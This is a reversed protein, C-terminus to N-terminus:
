GNLQKRLSELKDGLSRFRELLSSDREVSKKFRRQAYNLKRRALDHQGIRLFRLAECFELEAETNNIIPLNDYVVNIATTLDKMQEVHARAELLHDEKGDMDFLRLLSDASSNHVGIQSRYVLNRIRLEKIQGHMAEYGELAEKLYSICRQMFLRDQPQEGRSYFLSEYGLGLGHLIRADRIEERKVLAEIDLIKEFLLNRRYLWLLIYIFEIRFKGSWNGKRQPGAGTEDPPLPQVMHLEHELWNVLDLELNEEHGPINISLFDVYALMLFEYMTKRLDNPEEGVLLEDLFRIVPEINNKERTDINSIEEMSVYFSSYDKRARGEQVFLLYPLHHYSFMVIDRGFRVQVSNINDSRQSIAQKLKILHVTKNYRYRFFVSDTDENNEDALDRMKKIVETLDTDGEQTAASLIEDLSQQYNNMLRQYFHNELFSTYNGALRSLEAQALGGQGEEPTENQMISRILRVISLPMEKDEPYQEILINFFFVQRIHRHIGSRRPFSALFTLDKYYLERVVDFIKPTKDPTSSLYYFVTERFDPNRSILENARLLKEIACVDSYTNTRYRYLEQDKMKRLAGINSDIFRDFVTDVFTKGNGTTFAEDAVRNFAEDKTDFKDIYIKRKLFQLFDGGQLEEKRQHFIVLLFFVDFNHQAIDDLNQKTEILFKIQDALAKFNEAAELSNNLRAMFVDRVRLLEYKYEELLLISGTKSPSFFKEYAIGERAMKDLTAPTFHVYALYPLFFHVFDYSDVAYFFRYKSFYLEIDDMIGDLDGKELGFPLVEIKQMEM